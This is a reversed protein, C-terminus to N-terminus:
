TPCANVSAHLSNGLGAKSRLGKPKSSRRFSNLDAPAERSFKTPRAEAHMAATAKRACISLPSIKPSHCHKDGKDEASHWYMSANCGSIYPACTM